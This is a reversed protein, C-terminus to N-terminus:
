PSSLMVQPPLSRLGRIYVSSNMCALDLAGAGLGVTLGAGCGITRAVGFGAGLGVGLGVAFAVTFGFGVGVGAGGAAANSIGGPAIVASTSPAKPDYTGRSGKSRAGNSAPTM